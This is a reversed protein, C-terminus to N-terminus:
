KIRLEVKAPGKSNKSSGMSAGSGSTEQIIQFVVKSEVGSVDIRYDREAGPGLIDIHSLKDGVYVPLLEKTPSDQDYVNIKFQRSNQENKNKIKVYLNTESKNTPIKCSSVSRNTKSM